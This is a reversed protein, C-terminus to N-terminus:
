VLLASHRKSYKFYPSFTTLTFSTIFREVPLLFQPNKLYFLRQPLIELCEAFILPTEGLNESESNKKQLFFRHSMVKILTAIAIPIPKFRPPILVCVM